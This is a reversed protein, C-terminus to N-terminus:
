GPTSTTLAGYSLVHSLLKREVDHGLRVHLFHGIGDLLRLFLQRLPKVELAALAGDLQIGVLDDKRRIVFSLESAHLVDDLGLQDLALDREFGEVVRMDLRSGSSGDTLFRLDDLADLGLLRLGDNARNLVRLDFHLGGDLAILNANDAAALV